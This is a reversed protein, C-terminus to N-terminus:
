GNVVFSNNFSPMGDKADMAFRLENSLEHIGNGDKAIRHAHIFSWVAAGSLISVTSNITESFGCASPQADEDNCLSNEWAKKHEPNDPHFGYVVGERPDLRTEVVWEINKFPPKIAKEYIEKRSKMTDTLLFVYKHLPVQGEYKEERAEIPNNYEHGIMGMAKAKNMGVLSPYFAQNPINHSEIKDHDWIRIGKLGMKILMLAVHSGTAGCGIIDIKDKFDDPHM